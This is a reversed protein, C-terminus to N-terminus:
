LHTYSAEEYTSNKRLHYFALQFAHKVHGININCGQPDSGSSEFWERVKKCMEVESAAVITDNTSGGGM